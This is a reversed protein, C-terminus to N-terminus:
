VEVRFDFGGAPHLLSFIGHYIHMRIPWVHSVDCIVKVCGTSDHNSLMHPTRASPASLNWALM